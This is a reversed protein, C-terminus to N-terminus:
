KKEAPFADIKNVAKQLIYRADTSDIARDGNVDARVADDGALTVKGVAHQLAVRADSSDVVGDDNADGILLEPDDPDEIVETEATVTAETINWGEVAFVPEGGNLRSEAIELKITQSQGPMLSIYNDDYYVPLVRDGTATETTKLRIMLAPTDSTNTIVVAYRRIGDEATLECKATDLTVNSLTNLAKYQQSEKTNTWYFDSGLTKGNANRVYTEIFLIDTANEPVELMTLGVVDDASCDTVDEWEGVCKGNLDYVKYGVTLNKLEQGTSNSLAILNNACNWYVKIPQNAKKIAFYGANTDYYYDYTQWVMSPWASQSMWMLLGNGRANYVAEFMAKHEEYNVMQAIRAFEKLSNYEGYGNRMMTEFADAGQASKGCFDHLGWVSNIPWAYEDTLMELLSEYSPINPMGRESHLTRPTNQFYWSVPQVGYPGFGSVTNSASHPIYHRTGDETLTVLTLQANLTEPPNGENRGCYLALAAHSRNRRVKDVANAVFMDEDNPNPGDGPNALWFDDWILIGYRDCAEYFAPHNTMGVWNRIMTLNAEAHLRIKIDYDEPTAALNADDMGWNGGRCVIRVGNCSITLPSGASYTFERVGFSVTKTDSVEGNDSVSLTADYLFQEGYTNPWWLRPQDMTLTAVTVEKTEGAKLHIPESTFTLDSPTITGSVTVDKDKDSPNSLMTRVTLKAKSFDGSEVDLDTVVWPDLLQVEQTYNVYVDGYIGINRGRVTPVWDWGISAHITPNDAGLAGGNPGADDKTQVTVAGPTDNKHILVVLHNDGGYNVLETVDFRGRIFAGDIRGVYEGNFYIEAKWNISNFNLWTREGRRSAPITFTNRYWFDATFFSDSIQLQQDAVNMDPIAGAKFYSTLVTGPVTAPLWSQDDYQTGSLTEGAAMVESARQVRWNGGTLYQTGDTEPEPQAPLTYQVDNTGYVEWESLSYRDGASKKCLLRLYTATESFTLTEVGGEGSQNMAVTRWDEGDDSAQIAYETAYNKDAWYLKVSDIKSEGGLDLKLWEEGSGKSTWVSNFVDRYAEFLSQGDAGLLDFESLQLRSDGCNQTVVLRYYRYAAPEAITYTNVQYRTAFTENSRTDLVTFTQGDNSGQLTWARPDRSAEDNASAVKYTVATKGSEEPFAAQLWATSHFTLWKTGTQGDFACNVTEGTPSDDYQATMQVRQSSDGNIIGDTVLHGTDNYNAASSHLVSRRLALNRSGSAADEATVGVSAATAGFVCAM